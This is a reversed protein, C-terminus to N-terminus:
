ADSLVTRLHGLEEEVEAPESVTRAIEERLLQRYRQRLRHVASKITGESVNLQRALDAYPLAAEDGVLCPHLLAFAQGRGERESEQRLRNMVEELLAMAWRREFCAEPTTGDAPEITYHNEAADFELPLIQAGGGRKQARAKDWENSLYHNLAGLLFNRFRGKERDARGAWNRELWRTFFGQILDQADEASCGRRRLYWYLPPWYVQYLRGLAERGQPSDTGAQLVVSWHTTAFVRGSPEGAERSDARAQDSSENM